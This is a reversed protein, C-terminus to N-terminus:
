KAARVLARGLNQAFEKKIMVSFRHEGKVFFGLRVLTEECMAGTQGRCNEIRAELDPAPTVPEPKASLLVTKM